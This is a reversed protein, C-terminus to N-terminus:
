AIRRLLEVGDPLETVINLKGSRSKEWRIHLVGRPTPISGEAWQL